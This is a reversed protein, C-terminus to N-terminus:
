LVRGFCIKGRHLSLSDRRKNSADITKHYKRVLFLILVIKEGRLCRNAKVGVAGGASQARGLLRGQREREGEASRERGGRVWLPRHLINVRWEKAQRGKLKEDGPRGHCRGATAQGAGSVGEEGREEAEARWSRCRYARHPEESRKGARHSLGPLEGYGCQPHAATCPMLCGWNEREWPQPLGCPGPWERAQALPVRSCQQGAPCSATHLRGHWSKIGSTVSTHKWSLGMLPRASCLVQGRTLRTCLLSSVDEVQCEMGWHGWLCESVPCSESHITLFLTAERFFDSSLWLM